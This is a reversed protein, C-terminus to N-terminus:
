SENVTDLSGMLVYEEEEPAAPATPLVYEEEGPATPATTNGM